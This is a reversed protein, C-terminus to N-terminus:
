RRAQRLTAVTLGLCAATASLYYLIDRSDIVGRAISQFRSMVSLDAFIKAFEVPVNAAIADFLILIFIIFVSLIFAIIQNRTLASTLMGISVFMSGLFLMGVYGGMVPGYDFVRGPEAISAVAFAYPLTFAVAVMVTLLAGLFKGVVVQVETVPLTLLVEITGSKREEALMRMTVAPCIFLFLWPAMAFFPRVTAVKMVMLGSFDWFLFGALGLYVVLVVYGVPSNFFAAFERKALAFVVSM